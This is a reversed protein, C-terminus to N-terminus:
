GRVRVRVEVRVRVLDLERGLEAALPVDLLREARAAVNFAWGM